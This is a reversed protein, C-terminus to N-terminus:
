LDEPGIPARAGHRIHLILLEDASVTYFILYPYRALPMVRVNRRQTLLRGSGSFESLLDITSRVTAEVSRAASSNRERLYDAIAIIDETARPSFRVKM